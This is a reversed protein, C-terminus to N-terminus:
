LQSHVASFHLVRPAITTCVTCLPHVESILLIYICSVCSSRAGIIAPNPRAGGCGRTAPCKIVTLLEVNTDSILRSPGQLALILPSLCVCVCVSMCVLYVTVRAACARRHNFVWWLRCPSSYLLSSHEHNNTHTLLCLAHSSIEQTKGIFLQTLQM